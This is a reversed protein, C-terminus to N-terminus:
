VVITMLVGLSWDPNTFNGFLFPNMTYDPWFAELMPLGSDFVPALVDVPNYMQTAGCSAGCPIKCESM